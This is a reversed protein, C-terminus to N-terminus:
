RLYGHRRMIKEHDKEIQSIQAATLEDEYHGSSGKRFFREQNKSNEVFGVEEEQQKLKKFSSFDIAKRLRVKDVPIGVRRVVSSFTKEPDRLM